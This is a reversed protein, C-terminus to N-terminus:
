ETPLGGNRLAEPLDQVSKIQPKIEKMNQFLTKKAKAFNEVGEIFREAVLSNCNSTEILRLLDAKGAERLSERREELAKSGQGPYIVQFAVPLTVEYLYGDLITVADGKEAALLDNLIEGGRFLKTKWCPDFDKGLYQEGLEKYFGYVYSANIFRLRNLTAVDSKYLAEVLKPQASRDFDAPSYLEQAARKDGCEAGARYYNEAAELNKEVYRENDGLFYLAKCSGLEEARRFNSLAQETRNTELASTAALYAIEADNPFLEAAEQCESYILEADEAEDIYPNEPARALCDDVKANGTKVNKQYSSLKGTGSCASLVAILFVLLSLTIFFKKQISSRYNRSEDISRFNM